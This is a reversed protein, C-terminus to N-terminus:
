ATLAAEDCPTDTVTCTLTRPDRGAEEAIAKLEALKQLVVDTGRSGIPIWGDCYDVVRRLTAPTHGGLLDPPHPKQVPKPWCWIPDFNVFRGHFEAEDRAWTEKMALIREKMLSFCTKYRTGHNEMEEVNWGAGIGFLFRGHSLVDVTAVQKATIIPDREIVLCVDTGLKLTRTCAAM